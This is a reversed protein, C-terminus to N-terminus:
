RLNLSTCIMPMGTEMASSTHTNKMILSFSMWTLMLALLVIKVVIQITNLVMNTTKTLVMLFGVNMLGAFVYKKSIM